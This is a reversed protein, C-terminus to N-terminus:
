RIKRTIEVVVGHIYVDEPKYKGHNNELWQEGDGNQKYRKVSAEGEIIVIVLDGPEPQIETDVILTDGELVYPELCLGKVRYAHYSSPAAKARTTAVYDVPEVGGGASVEAYVPMYAKISMEIESLAVRLPKPQFGVPLPKKGKLTELDIDYVDAIKRIVLKGQRKGSEIMALYTNSIGISEAFEEQTLGMNKRIERVIKGTKQKDNLKMMILM